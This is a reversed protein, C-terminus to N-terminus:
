TGAGQFGKVIFLLMSIATLSCAIRNIRVLVRANVHGRMQLVVALLTVAAGLVTSAVIFERSLLWEIALM